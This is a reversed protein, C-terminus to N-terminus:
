NINKSSINHKRNYWEQYRELIKESKLRAIEDSCNLCVYATNGIATANLKSFNISDDDSNLVQTLIFYGDNDDIANKTIIDVYEAMCELPITIISGGVKNLHDISYRLGYMNFKESPKGFKKEISTLVEAKDEETLNSLRKIAM